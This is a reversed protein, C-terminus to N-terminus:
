TDNKIRYVNMENRRRKKWLYRVTREGWHDAIFKTERLITNSCAKLLIEQNENLIEGRENNSLAGMYM